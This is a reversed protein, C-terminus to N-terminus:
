FCWSPWITDEELKCASILLFPATYIGKKKPRHASNGWFLTQVGHVDSKPLTQPPSIYYLRRNQWNTWFNKMSDKCSSSINQRHFQNRKLCSFSNPGQSSCLYKRNTWTFKALLFAQFTRLPGGGVKFIQILAWFPRSQLIGFLFLHM